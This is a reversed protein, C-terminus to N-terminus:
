FTKPLAIRIFAPAVQRVEQSLHACALQLEQPDVPLGCASLPQHTGREREHEFCQSAQLEPLLIGSHGCDSGSAGVKLVQM